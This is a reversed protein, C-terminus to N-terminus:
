QGGAAAAIAASVAAYGSGTVPTGNVVVTPTGTIGAAQAASSSASVAASAEASALDAVFRAHDLGLLDAMATVRETTFAGVNEHLGQNAYLTSWMDWFKGQRDAAWAARAAVLSDPGIFAYGRYTLSATGATLENRVLSPFVDDGWRKCVPCQFDEYVEVRVPADARGLVMGAAPLGTPAFGRLVEGEPAPAKPSLVVLAAVLALGAVIAVITVQVLGFSPRRPRTAARDRASRREALQRARRERRVPRATSSLPLSRHPSARV